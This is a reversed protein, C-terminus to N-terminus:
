LQNRTCQPDREMEKKRMMFKLSLLLKMRTSSISTLFIMAESPSTAITRYSEKLLREIMRPTKRM